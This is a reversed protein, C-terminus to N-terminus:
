LYPLPSNIDNGVRPTSQFPIAEKLFSAFKPNNISKRLYNDHLHAYIQTTKVDTHGLHERVAELSEGCMLMYSAFAHRLEKSAADNIGALKLIRKFRQGAATPTIFGGKQNRFVYEGDLRNDALPMIASIAVENFYYIKPSPNTRATKDKTVEYWGEEFHLDRKKLHVVEQIRRGTALMFRIIAFTQPITSALIDKRCSSSLYLKECAFIKEIEERSFFRPPRRKVPERKIKPLNIDHPQFYGYRLGWSLVMHIYMTYKNCRGSSVGVKKRLNQVREKLLYEKLRAIELLTLEDVKINGFFRCIVSLTCQYDRFTTPEVSREISALYDDALRSFCMSGGPKASRRQKKVCMESMLRYYDSEAKKRDGGLYFCKRIGAISLFVAYQKSAKHFILKPM